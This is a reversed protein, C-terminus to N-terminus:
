DVKTRRDRVFVKRWGRRPEVFVFLSCVGKREYLLMRHNQRKECASDIGSSCGILPGTISPAAFRWCRM